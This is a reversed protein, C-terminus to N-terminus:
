LEPFTKMSEVAAFLDEADFSVTIVTDLTEATGYGGGAKRVTLQVQADRRELKLEDNSNAGGTVTIETRKKIAM